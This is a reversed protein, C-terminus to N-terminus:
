LAFLFLLVAMRNYRTDGFGSLLSVPQRDFLANMRNSLLNGDVLFGSAIYIERM